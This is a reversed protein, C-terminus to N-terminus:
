QRIEPKVIDLGESLKIADDASVGFEREIRELIERQQAMFVEAWHQNGIVRITNAIQECGRALRLLGM